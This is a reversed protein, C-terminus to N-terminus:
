FRIAAECIKRTDALLRAGDFSPAAGAVVFRHPVGCANFSASWFAGMEVPCDALEDYNAARYRGFGRADVKLPFLGTACHWLASGARKKPAVIDIECPLATQGAVQLCLSTANFFGRAAELWATRVSADYACVEYTLVLPQGAQCDARWRDKALQVLEVPQRGQRAALRQLNKAFERVLYSGPIWAPLALEQAAAPQAISLTVHYLHAHLDAAEVRYHVAARPLATPM